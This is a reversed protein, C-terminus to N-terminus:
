TAGHRIAGRLLAEEGREEALAVVADLQLLDFGAAELRDGRQGARAAGIWSPKRVLIAFLEGHRQSQARKRRLRRRRLRSKALNVVIDLLWAVFRDRARLEELDLFAPLL